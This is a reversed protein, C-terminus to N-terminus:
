NQYRDQKICGVPLIAPTKKRYSLYESGFRQELYIEEKKVLIHTILYMAFPVTLGLWSKVPHELSFRM